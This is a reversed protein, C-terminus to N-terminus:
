KFPNGWSVQIQFLDEGQLNIGYHAELDVFVPSKWYCHIGAGLSEQWERYNLYLLDVTLQPYLIIQEHEWELAWHQNVSVFRDSLSQGQQFGSRLFAEKLSTKLYPQREGSCYTGNGSYMWILRNWQRVQEWQIFSGWLSQDALSLYVSSEFRHRILHDKYIRGLYNLNLEPQLYPQTLVRSQQMPYGGSLSGQITWDPTIRFAMGLSGSGEQWPEEYWLSQKWSTQVQLLTRGGPKLPYEYQIENRNYGTILMMAGGRGYLNQMGWAAWLTNGGYRQRFGDQYRISLTYAGENRRSPILIVESHYFWGSHRLRIEGRRVKEELIELPMSEGPKLDFFSFIVGPHTFDGEKRLPIPEANEWSYRNTFSSLKIRQIEVQGAM